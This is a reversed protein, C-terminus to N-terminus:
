VTPYSADMAIGCMGGDTSKVNKLIKVYGSLGWDAGWSNKVLWYDTGSDSGYGAALVGHDLNHGCDSSIVGGWYLQWSMQDAEVAVSVPQQAVAAALALESNAPVDKCGGISAVIKSKSFHCTGDEATYPYDTFSELGGVIKIYDFAADMDGGDCGQNGYSGSCDVLQQESLSVLKRTKDVATLGEVGEAASFSWCSGCQGQNKVSTVAGGTVWDVSSPLSSTPLDSKTCIDTQKVQRPRTYKAKFEENTLDAFKNVGLTFGKNQSNHVRAYAANDRFVKFRYTYEEESEYKRDFRTMFDRFEVEELELAKLAATSGPNQFVM